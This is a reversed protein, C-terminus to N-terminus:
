IDDEMLRSSFRTIEANPFYDAVIQLPISDDGTYGCEHNSFEYDYVDQPDCNDMIAQHLDDLEKRFQALGAQTGYLGAGGSFIEADDSIAAKVKGAAFQQNGFAFFCEAMSPNFQKVESYKM